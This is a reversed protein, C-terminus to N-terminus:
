PRTRRNHLPFSVIQIWCTHNIINRNERDSVAGDTNHNTVPRPNTSHLLFQIWDHSLVKESLFHPFSHPWPAWLPPMFSWAQLSWPSIGTWKLRRWNTNRTFTTWNWHKGNRITLRHSRNHRPHEPRRRLVRHRRHHNRSELENWDGKHISCKEPWNTKLRARIYLLGRALIKSNAYGYTNCRSAIKQWHMNLNDAPSSIQIWRCTLHHTIYQLIIHYTRHRIKRAAWYDDGRRASLVM